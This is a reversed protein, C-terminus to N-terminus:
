TASGQLLGRISAALARAASAHCRDPTRALMAIRSGALKPLAASAPLPRLGRATLRGLPAVGAGAEVAALLALCSGGTFAERWPLQAAELATVAAARVGCPAPLLVLPLAESRSATPADGYWDLGDHGLTEGDGTGSGARIVALDITGQNYLERMEQSQGLRVGIRARAPLALRLARLVDPLATGLVHDSLGLGISPGDVAEDMLAAEHAALLTRAHDLFSAGADTLRVARPTRDLLRRGLRAELAKIRQSVVPQVTGAAEAARTLNGHEVALVFLRVSQLDLM